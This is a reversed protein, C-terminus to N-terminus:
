IPKIEIEIDGELLIVKAPIGMAQWARRLGEFQGDTLRFPTKLVVRQATDIYEPLYSIEVKVIKGEVCLVMEGDKIKGIFWKSKVTPNTLKIM